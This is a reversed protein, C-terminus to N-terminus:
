TEDSFAIDISSMFNVRIMVDVYSRFKGTGGWGGANAYGDAWVLDALNQANPQTEGDVPGEVDVTRVFNM